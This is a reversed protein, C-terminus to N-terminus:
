SCRGRVDMGSARWAAFRITPNSSGNWRTWRAARCAAYYRNGRFADGTLAVPGVGVLGANQNPGLTVTNGAVIVHTAANMLDGCVPSSGNPRAEGIVRIGYLAGQNAAVRNGSVTVNNSNEVEIGSIAHTQVVTNGSVTGNCSIEIRIGDAIGYRSLNHESRSDLVQFGSNFIDLWIGVGNNDHAYLGRLLLGTSGVFKTGGANDTSSNGHTNNFAIETDIVRLHANDNAEIGYRGNHDVISRRVTVGDGVLRFGDEGAYRARVYSLIWGDATRVGTDTAGSVTLNRITVDSAHNEQGDIDFAVRGNLTTRSRGAGWLVDGSKLRLTGSLTYDGAVLCFTTGPRRGDLVAQISRGLPISVGACSVTRPPSIHVEAGAGPPLLGFVAVLAATLLRSM